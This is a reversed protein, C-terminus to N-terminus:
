SKKVVAREAVCFTSKQRESDTEVALFDLSSFTKAEVERGKQGEFVVEKKQKEYVTFFTTDFGGMPLDIMKLFGRIDENKKFFNRLIFLSVKKTM